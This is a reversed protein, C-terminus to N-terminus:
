SKKEKTELERIQDSLDQVLQAHMRSLQGISGGINQAGAAAYYEKIIGDIERDINELQKQIERCRKLTLPM